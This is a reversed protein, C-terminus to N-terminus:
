CSSVAAEMSSDEVVSDELLAAQSEEGCLLENLASIAHLSDTRATELENYHRFYEESDASSEDTIEPNKQMFYYFERRAEQLRVQKTIAREVVKSIQDMKVKKGKTSMVQTRVM